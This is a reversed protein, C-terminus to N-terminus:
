LLLLTICTASDDVVFAMDTGGLNIYTGNKITLKGGRNHFIASLANWYRNNNAELEVVGNGIVTMEGYIYFLEYNVTSNDIVSLKKGNMDLTVKKGDSITFTKSDIDLDALLEINNETLGKLIGRNIAELLRDM